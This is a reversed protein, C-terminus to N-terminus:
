GSKSFHDNREKQQRELRSNALTARDNLWGIIDKFVTEINDLPEGYLLGHWMDQYLKITKDPSSADEHLKKSTSKDTVKDDEGHLVLFPM